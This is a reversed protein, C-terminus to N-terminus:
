ACEKHNNSFNQHQNLVNKKVDVDVVNSSGLVMEGMKIFHVELFYGFLIINAFFLYIAANEYFTANREILIFLLEGLALFTAFLAIKSPIRTKYVQPNNLFNMFAVLFRSGQIILAIPITLWLPLPIFYISIIATILYTIFIWLFMVQPITRQIKSLLVVFSPNSTPISNHM